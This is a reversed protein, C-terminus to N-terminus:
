EASKAKDALPVPAPAPSIDLYYEKGVELKAAVDANITGLLLSGGPTWKYFEANEKSGSTVPAMKVTFLSNPTGPQETKETVYFKARVM